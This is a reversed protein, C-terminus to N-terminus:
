GIHVRFRNGVIATLSDHLVDSDVAILQQEAAAVLARLSRPAQLPEDAGEAGVADDLDGLLCEGIQSGGVDRPELGQWCAIKAAGTCQLGRVGTRYWIWVISGRIWYARVLSSTLM